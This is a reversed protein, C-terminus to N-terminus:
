VVFLFIRELFGQTLTVLYIWSISSCTTNGDGSIKPLTESKIFPIYPLTTKLRNSGLDRLYSKIEFEVCRRHAKVPIIRRRQVQPNCDSEHQNILKTKQNQLIVGWVNMYGRKM